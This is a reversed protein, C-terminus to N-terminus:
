EVDIKGQATVIINKFKSSDAIDELRVAIGGSGSGYTTTTGTRKQFLVENGAGQITVAAIKVYGGLSLTEKQTAAAYGSGDDRYLVYSNTPDVNFRVGWPKDNEGSVAKGQARRLIAAIQRASTDLETRRQYGGFMIFGMSALIALIAIALLIEVLSFGRPHHLKFFM